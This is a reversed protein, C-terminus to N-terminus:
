IPWNSIQANIFIKLSQIVSTLDETYLLVDAFLANLDESVYEHAIQNRLERLNLLIEAHEIIGIKELLNAADIKTQVTEQLIAFLTKLAKQTLIDSARSFRATLAEFSEQEDLDYNAKKGIKECKRRSYELALLAKDLDAM